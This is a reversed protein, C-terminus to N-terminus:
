SDSYLLRGCNDCAIIEAGKRAEIDISTSVRMHCGQCKQGRLPVIIPFALGRGARDYAQLHPRELSERAAALATKAEEVRRELELEKEDLRELKRREAELQGEIEEREARQRERQEDIAYLTELEREEISAIAAQTAQIEHELAQYEENKKVQLQQTKYRSLREEVGRMESELAKSKVELARLAEAGEEIRRELQAIRAKASEREGPLQSLEREARQAAMDRDQLVLMRTMWDPTM